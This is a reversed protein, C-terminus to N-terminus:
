AVEKPTLTVAYGLQELRHVHHRQLQTTDLKELYDAGLDAYPQKKSLMHYIIVLLTHSVAVVAKKKGMRRALRHYHTSLYTDKTHSIAWTVEALAARLYPNGGTPTGRLRKGASQRNGPCVGAWSSLHKASPFRQMEVGIEAVITAATREHVGPITQLLTMAEQFPALLAEIEQQLQDLQEDLFDIHTLIHRVMLQQHPQIHGELAQQLQPLKKRLLGRALNALMTADTTGEILADLM